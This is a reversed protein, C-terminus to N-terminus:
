LAYGVQAGFKLVYPTTAFFPCVGADMRGEVYFVDAIYLRVGLFVETFLYVPQGENWHLPDLYILADAAVGCTLTLNKTFWSPYLFYIQGGASVPFYVSLTPGMEATFMTETFLGIRPGIYLDFWDLILFDYGVVADFNVADGVNDRAEWHAGGGAFIGGAPYGEASAFAAALVAILAMVTIRRVRASMFVTGSM